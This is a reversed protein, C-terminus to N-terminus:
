CEAEYHFPGIYAITSNQPTMVVNPEFVCVAVSARVGPPIQEQWQPLYSVGDLLDTLPLAEESYVSEICMPELNSLQIERMFRSPARDGDASYLSDVFQHLESESRFRNSAAFVHVVAMQREMKEIM